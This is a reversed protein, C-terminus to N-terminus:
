RASVVACMVDEGGEGKTTCHGGDLIVHSQVRSQSPMAHVERNHKSIGHSRAQGLHVFRSAHTSQTNGVLGTDKM